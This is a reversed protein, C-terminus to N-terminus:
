QGDGGDAPDTAEIRAISNMTGFPNQVHETADPDNIWLGDVVFKYQYAGPALEVNRRFSGDKVKQMKLKTADWDNFDGVLFVKKADPNGRFAFTTAGTKANRIIM